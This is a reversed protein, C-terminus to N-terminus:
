EDDAERTNGDPIQREDLLVLAHALLQQLEFRFDFGFFLQRARKACRDGGGPGIGFGDFTGRTRIQTVRPRAFSDNAEFLRRPWAPSCRAAQMRCAIEAVDAM